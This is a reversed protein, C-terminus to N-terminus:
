TNEALCVWQDLDLEQARALPKIRCTAFVEELIDKKELSGLNNKLQKRRSAFGAKALQWFRKQQEGLAMYGEHPKTLDCHVVASEVKPAPFFAKGPVQLIIEAQSYVQTALSILSTKGPKATMREAVEKQVMVTMSSPKPTAELYQRLLKSTIQYPLNAVLKFSGNLQELGVNGHAAVTQEKLWAVVQHYVESSLADGHILTINSYEKLLVSRQYAALKDDLEILLVAKAKEALKRSLVGFGPGVEIVLDDKTIGAHEVMRDIVSDDLLFNQGKSKTPTIDLQKLLQQLHQKNM